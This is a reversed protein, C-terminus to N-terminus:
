EDDNADGKLKSHIVSLVQQLRSITEKLPAVDASDLETNIFSKDELLAKLGDMFYSIATFRTPAIAQPIQGQTETRPQKVSSLDLRYKQLADSKVGELEGMKSKWTEWMIGDKDKSTGYHGLLVQYTTTTTSYGIIVRAQEVSLIGFGLLEAFNRRAVPIKEWEIVRYGIMQLYCM